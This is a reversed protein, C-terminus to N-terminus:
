QHLRISIIIFLQLCSLLLMRLDGAQRNIEVMTMMTAETVVSKDTVVSVELLMSVTERFVTVISELLLVADAAL